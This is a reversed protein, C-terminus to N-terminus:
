KTLSKYIEHVAYDADAKGVDIFEAEPQNKFWTIQRKAYHRTDKSFNYLFEDKTIENNLYKVAHKYGVGTLGYCNKDFGMDLVRKTEQIMESNVMNECRKNIDSYLKERDKLIVFHRFNKNELNKKKLLETMTRGTIKYVELARIIRQTNAKNKEASVSDVALLQKYVYELGKDSIEKNIEQRIKEDAEPLDDLGYIFAKIYLGTGGAIFPIKGEKSIKEVYKRADTEFNKASYKQDPEIIDTLYQKVTDTIRINEANLIGQKNTGADLYKYVQRSDASIVSGNLKKCLEVAVATKGAGTPGSIIITQNCNM